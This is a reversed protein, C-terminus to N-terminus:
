FESTIISNWGYNSLTEVSVRVDELLQDSVLPFTFSSLDEEEEEEEEEDEFCEIKDPPNTSKM